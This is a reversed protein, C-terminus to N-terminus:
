RAGGETPTALAARGAAEPTWCRRAGLAEANDFEPARNASRCDAFTAGLYGAEQAARVTAARAAGRSQARVVIRIGYLETLWAKM